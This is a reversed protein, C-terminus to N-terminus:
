QRCSVVRSLVPYVLTLALGLSLVHPRGHYHNTVQTHNHAALLM